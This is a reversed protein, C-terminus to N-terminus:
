SPSTEKWLPTLSNTPFGLVLPPSEIMVSRPRAEEGPNMPELTLGEDTIKLDEGTVTFGAEVPDFGSYSQVLFDRPQLEPDMGKYYNTPEEDSDAPESEPASSASPEPAVVTAAEPQDTPTKSETKPTVRKQIKDTKPSPVVTQEKNSLFKFLVLCVAFTGILILLTNTSKLKISL